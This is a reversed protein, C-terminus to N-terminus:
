SQESRIQSVREVLRTLHEEVRRNSEAFASIAAHMQASDRDHSSMVIALSKSFQDQASEQAEHCTGAIDSLRNAYHEQVRIWAGLMKFALLSFIAVVVIIGLVAAGAPGFKEFASSLPDLLDTPTQPPLM